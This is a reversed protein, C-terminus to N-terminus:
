RGFGVIQANPNAEHIGEVITTMWGTCKSMLEDGCQGATGGKSACGPCVGLADNGM